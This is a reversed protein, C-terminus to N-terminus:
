EIVDGALANAIETVSQETTMYNQAIINLDRPHEKLRRMMEEINPIEDSYLQRHKDGAEGIWYGNTRRIIDEMENFCEEMKRISDSVADAKNILVETSVKIMVDGIIAM